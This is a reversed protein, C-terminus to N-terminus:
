LLQLPETALKICGEGYGDNCDIGFDKRLPFATEDEPSLIRKLDKHGEFVIGFMDFTERELVKAGVWEDTISMVKPTTRPLPVAIQICHHTKPHELHVILDFSADKLWDVATLCSLYTYGAEKKLYQLVQKYQTTSVVFGELKPPFKVPHAESFKEHVKSYLTQM